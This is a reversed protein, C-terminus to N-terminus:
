SHYLSDKQNSPFSTVREKYGDPSFHFPSYVYDSDVVNCQHDEGDCIPDVITCFFGSEVFQPHFWNQPHVKPFRELMSKGQFSPAFVSDRRSMHSREGEFLEYAIRSHREVTKGQSMEINKRRRSYNHLHITCVCAESWVSSFWLLLGEDRTDFAARVRVYPFCNRAYSRMM